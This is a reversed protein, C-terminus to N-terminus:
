DLHYYLLHWGELPPMNANQRSMLEKDFSMEIIKPFLM